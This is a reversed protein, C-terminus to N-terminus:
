NRRVPVSAAECVTVLVHEGFMVVEALPAVTVKWAVGFPVDANAPQLAGRLREELVHEPVVFGQLATKPPLGASVTVNLVFCEVVVPTAQEGFGTVTPPLVVQVAVTVSVDVPAVAGVPVTVKPSPPAPPLKPLVVQVSLPLEEGM